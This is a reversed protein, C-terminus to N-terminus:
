RQKRGNHDANRLDANSAIAIEGGERRLRSWLRELGSETLGLLRVIKRTSFGKKRYEVARFERDLPVKITCGGYLESLKNTHVLTLDDVLQSPNSSGLKPIYLRVGAYHELLLLYGDHGL